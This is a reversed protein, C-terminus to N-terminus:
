SQQKLRGLSVMENGTWIASHGTRGAPVNTPTMAVWSDMLLNYRGGTNIFNAGYGAWVIM